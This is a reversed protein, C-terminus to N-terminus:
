VLMKSERFAPQIFENKNEGSIYGLTVALEMVDTLFRRLQDLVQQRDLLVLKEENGYGFETLYCQIEEDVPILKMLMWHSEHFDLRITQGQALNSLEEPFRDEFLMCIDPDLYVNFKTDAIQVVVQRDCEYCFKRFGFQFDSLEGLPDDPPDAFSELTREGLKIKFQEIQIIEISELKDSAM